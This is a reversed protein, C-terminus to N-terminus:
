SHAMDHLCSKIQTLLWAGGVARRAQFARKSQSVYNLKFAEFWGFSGHSANLYGPFHSPTGNMENTSEDGPCEECILWTLSVVELKDYAAM